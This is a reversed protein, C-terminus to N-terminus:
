PLSCIDCREEHRGQKLEAVLDPAWAWIRPTAAVHGLAEPLIAKVWRRTEQVLRKVDPPDAGLLLAMARTNAM